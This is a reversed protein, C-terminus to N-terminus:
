TSRINAVILGRFADEGTGQLARKPIMLFMRAGYYLLFLNKTERFRVYVEWKGGHDSVDSRLHIGSEDARFTYERSLNPHKKFDRRCRTTFFLFPCSIWFLGLLIAPAAHSFGMEYLDFASFVLCLAGLGLVIRYGRASKMHARQAEVYDDVNCRYKTEITGTVPSSVNSM